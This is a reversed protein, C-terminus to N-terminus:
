QRSLIKTIPLIFYMCVGQPLNINVLSKALLPLWQKLIKKVLPRNLKIEM